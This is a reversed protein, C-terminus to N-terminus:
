GNPHEKLIHRSLGKETAYTNACFPCKLTETPTPPPTLVVPPIEPEPSPSISAETSTIEREVDTLIVPPTFTETVDSPDIGEPTLLDSVLTVPKVPVIEAKPVSLDVLKGQEILENLNVYVISPDLNYVGGRIINYVIPVKGNLTIVEAKLRLLESTANKVSRTM